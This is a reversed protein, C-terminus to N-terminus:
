DGVALFGERVKRLLEINIYLLGGTALTEIGLLIKPHALIGEGVYYGALTTLAILSVALLRIRLAYAMLYNWLLPVTIARHLLIGLGLGYMHNNSDMPNPFSSLHSNETATFLVIGGVFSHTALLMLWMLEAAQASSDQSYLNRDTSWALSFGALLIGFGPFGLIYAVEPALRAFVLSALVTLLLMTLGLYFVRREQSIRAVIPGIGCLLISLSLFVSSM